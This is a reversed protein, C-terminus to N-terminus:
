RIGFKKLIKQWFNEKEVENGKEEKEEIVPFFFAVVKEGERKLNLGEYGVKELYDESEAESIKTSLENRKSKEEQLEKELFSLEEKVKEREKIIKFNLNLFLVLVGLALFILFVIFYSPTRKKKKFRRPRTIM